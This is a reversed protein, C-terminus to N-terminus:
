WTYHVSYTIVTQGSPPVTSSFELTHSDIKKFDQSSAPISWNNSRSLHEVVKITAPNKSQNRLRIEFSEDMTQRSAEVKFDTRKHEGVLDFANGLKLSVKEKSATHGIHDEGVFELQEGDKRYVRVNGAPM